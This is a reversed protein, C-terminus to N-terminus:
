HAIGHRDNMLDAVPDPVDSWRSGEVRRLGAVVETLPTEDLVEFDVIKFSKLSWSADASRLWHGTGQVRVTAGLYHQALRRAIDPTTFLGTRIVPGDRLHVPVTDDKGGVRIVEGDLTGNQKIFYEQTM